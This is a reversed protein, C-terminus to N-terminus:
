SRMPMATGARRRPSVSRRSSKARLPPRPILARTITARRSAGSATPPRAVRLERGSVDDLRAHRQRSRRQRRQRRDHGYLSGASRRDTRGGRAPDAGQRRPARQRDGRHQTTMAGIVIDAGDASVGRLEDLAALDILHSPAALRLKMMPILSHGGAIVRAEADLNALLAIADSLNTPRHYDFSGPIM